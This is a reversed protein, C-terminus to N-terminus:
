IPLRSNGSATFAKLIQQVLIGALKLLHFHCAPAQWM